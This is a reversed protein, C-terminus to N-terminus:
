GKARPTVPEPGAADTDLRHALARHLKSSTGSNRAGARRLAKVAANLLRQDGDVLEVEIERWTSVTTTDGLSQASVADDSVVALVTGDEAVLAHETRGTEIRAVPEVPRGRLSARALGVLPAPVARVSRGPARRIELRGRGNDPLKLHWGADSGGTRRRLTAGARTLRLDESDLYVAELRHEDATEVRAVGPLGSLDPLAFSPDADLKTEIELHTGRPADPVVDEGEPASRLARYAVFTFM